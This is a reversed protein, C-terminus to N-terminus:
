GFPIAIVKQLSGITRTIMSEPILPVLWNIQLHRPGLSILFAIVSTAISFLINANLVPQYPIPCMVFFTYNTISKKKVPTPKGTGYNSLLVPFIDMCNATHGVVGM